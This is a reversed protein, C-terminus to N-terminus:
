LLISLIRQNLYFIELGIQMQIIKHLCSRFESKFSNCHFGLPHQILNFFFFFFNTLFYDFSKTKKVSLLFFWVDFVEHVAIINQFNLIKFIKTYKM